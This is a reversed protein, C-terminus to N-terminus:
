SKKGKKTRPKKTGPKTSETAPVPASLKAHADRILLRLVSTRTFKSDYWFEKGVTNYDKVVADLRHLDLRSFRFNVPVKDNMGQILM